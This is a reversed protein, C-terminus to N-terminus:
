AGATTRAMAKRAAIRAVFGWTVHGSAIPDLHRARDGEAGPERQGWERLVAPGARVRRRMRVVSWTVPAHEPHDPVDV